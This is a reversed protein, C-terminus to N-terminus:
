IEFHLKSAPNKLGEIIQENQRLIENKQAKAFVDLMEQVIDTDPIPKTNQYVSQIEKLKQAQDTINKTIGTKIPLIKM